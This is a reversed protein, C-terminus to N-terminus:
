QKKNKALKNADYLTLGEQKLIGAVKNMQTSRKESNQSGINEM